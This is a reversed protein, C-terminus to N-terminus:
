VFPKGRWDPHHTKYNQWRIIEFFMVDPNLSGQVWHSSYLQVYPAETFIEGLGASKCFTYLWISLARVIVVHLAKPPMLPKRTGDIFEFPGEQDYLRMFDELTLQEEREISSM